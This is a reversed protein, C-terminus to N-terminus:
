ENKKRTDLREALDDENPKQIWEMFDCFLTHTPFYSEIDPRMDKLRIMMELIAERRPNSFIMMEALDIMYREEIRGATYHHLLVSTQIKLPDINLRQCVMVLESNMEIALGMFAPDNTLVIGLSVGLEANTLKEPEVEMIFRMFLLRIRLIPKDFFDRRFHMFNMKLIYLWHKM